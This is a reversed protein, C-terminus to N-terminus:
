LWRRVRRRYERYDDGFLANLAREEPKIQLETMAVVFAGLLLLNAACALWVMWAALLLALGLYMPNRTVRYVGDTVLTSAKEPNLPHVTTDHRRFLGIAAAALLLAAVVLTIVLVNRAPVPVPVAYPTLSVGWMAATFLLTVVPPPIVPKM